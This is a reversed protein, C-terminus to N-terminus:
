FNKLIGLLKLRKVGSAMALSMLARDAPAPLIVFIQLLMKSGPKARFGGPGGGAPIEDGSMRVGFVRVVKQFM